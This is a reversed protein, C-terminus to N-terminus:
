ASQPSVGFAAAALTMLRTIPAGVDNVGALAELANTANLSLNIRYFKGETDVVAHNQVKQTCEQRDDGERRLQRYNRGQRARFRGANATCVFALAFYSAHHAQLRRRHSSSRPLRKV